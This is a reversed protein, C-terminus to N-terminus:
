LTSPWSKYLTSRLKDVPRSEIVRGIGSGNHKENGVGGAAVGCWWVVVSCKGFKTGQVVTKLSHM